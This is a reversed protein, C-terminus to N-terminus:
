NTDLLTFLAVLQEYSDVNLFEGVREDEFVIDDLVALDQRDVDGSYNM